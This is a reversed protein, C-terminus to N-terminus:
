TTGHHQMRRIPSSIMRTSPGAGSHRTGLFFFPSKQLAAFQPQVRKQVWEKRERKPFLPFPRCKRKAEGFLFRRAFSFPGPFVKPHNGRVGEISWLRARSKRRISTPSDVISKTPASARMPGFANTKSHLQVSLRHASRLSREPPLSSRSPCSIASIKQTLNLVVTRAKGEKKEQCISVTRKKRASFSFFPNLFPGILVRLPCAADTVSRRRSCSREADAGVSMLSTCRPPSPHFNHPFISFLAQM